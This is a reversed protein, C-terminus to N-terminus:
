CKYSAFSARFTCSKRRLLRQTLRFMLGEDGLRRTM